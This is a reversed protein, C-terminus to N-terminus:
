DVQQMTNGFLKEFFGPEKKPLTSAYSPRQIFADPREFRQVRKGIFQPYYKRLKYTGSVRRPSRRRTSRKASKRPSRRSSRRSSKRPSRRTSRRSSKRPSRRSSRRASRRPSKRTSRRKGGLM